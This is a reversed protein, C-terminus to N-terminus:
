LPRNRLIDTRCIASVRIPYKDPVFLSVVFIVSYKMFCRYTEQSPCRIRELVSRQKQSLAKEKDGKKHIQAIITRPFFM